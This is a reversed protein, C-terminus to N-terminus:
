LKNAAISVDNWSLLPPSTFWDIFQDLTRDIIEAKKSNDNQRSQISVAQELDKRLLSREIVFNCLHQHARWTEYDYFNHVSRIHSKKERRLENSVEYGLILLLSQVVRIDMNQNFGFNLHSAKATISEWPKLSHKTDSAYYQVARVVKSKLELLRRNLDSKYIDMLWDHDATMDLTQWHSKAKVLFDTWSSAKFEPLEALIAQKGRKQLRHKLLRDAAYFDKYYTQGDYHTLQDFTIKQEVWGYGIECEREIHPEWTHCSLILKKSKISTEALERSFVLRNGRNCFAIDKHVQKVPIREFVGSENFIDIQEEEYDASLWVLPWGKDKYFAQRTLIIKPSESRLQIEFAINKGNYRAHLDPKARSLKDNSFIFKNDVDVVEWGPLQSLTYELLMKMNWHRKGESVFANIEALSKADSKWDCIVGKPHAFYYDHGHRSEDNRMAHLYVLQRCHYCVFRHHKVNAMRIVQLEHQEYIYSLVDVWVPEDSEVDLVIPIQRRMTIDLTIFSM